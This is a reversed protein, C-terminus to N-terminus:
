APRESLPWSPIVTLSQRGFHTAAFLSSLQPRGATRAGLKKERIVKETEVRKLTARGNSDLCVTNCDNAVFRLEAFDFSSL